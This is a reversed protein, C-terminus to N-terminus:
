CDLASRDASGSRILWTGSLALVFDDNRVAGPIGGASAGIAVIVPAKDADGERGNGAVKNNKAPM